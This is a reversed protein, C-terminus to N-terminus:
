PSTSCIRVPGTTPYRADLIRQDSILTYLTPDALVESVPRSVNDVLMTNGVLHIGHSYDFYDVKHINSYGQVRSGNDHFAGFIWVRLTPCHRPDTDGDETAGGVPVSMSSSIVVNKKGGIYAKRDSFHANRQLQIQKNTRIYLFTHKRSGDYPDQGIMFERQANPADMVAQIMKKTPLLLNFHNAVRQATRAELPVRLYDGNTGISLMDPSVYFTGVHEGSSVRIPIFQTLFPPYHRSSLAREIIAERETINPARTGPPILAQAATFRGNKIHDLVQTGLTTDTIGLLQLSLQTGTMGSSPSPLARTPPPLPATTAGGETGGAPAVTRACSERARNRFHWYGTCASYDYVPETRTVQIRGVIASANNICSSASVRMNNLEFHWNEQRLRCFGAEIMARELLLQCPVYPNAERGHSPADPVGSCHIDLAIASTHPCQSFDTSLHQRLEAEPTNPAPQYGAQFPNCTPAACHGSNCGNQLWARFQAEQTRLGNGLQIKWTQASPVSAKLRCFIEGARRLPEVLAPNVQGDINICDTSPGRVTQVSTPPSTPSTNGPIGWGGPDTVNRGGGSRGGGSGSGGPTQAGTGTNVYEAEPEDAREFYSLRLARLTVLDPNISQLIVYSCLLVILGIVANQIVEKGEKVDGMTSGLLYRFGGYVVMISALIAAAGIAFRYIGLIYQALFPVTVEGNSLTADSFSVGPIPVSLVPKLSRFSAQGELVPQSSSPVRDLGSDGFSTTGEVDDQGRRTVVRRQGDPGTTTRQTIGWERCNAQAWGDPDIQGESRFARDFFGPAEPCGAAGGSAQVPFCPGAFAYPPAARACAEASPLEKFSCQPLSGGAPPICACCLAHAHPISFAFLGISILALQFFSSFRLFIMSKGLTM